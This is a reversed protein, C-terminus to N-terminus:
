WLNYVRLPNFDNYSYYMLTFGKKRFRYTINTVELTESISKKLVLIELHNKNRGM